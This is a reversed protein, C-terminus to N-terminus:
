EEWTCCYTQGEEMACIDLTFLPVRFLQKVPAYFAGVTKM